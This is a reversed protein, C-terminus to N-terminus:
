SKILAALKEHGQAAAAEAPTKGSNNTISPDAGLNLLVRVLEERNQVTALFLATAGNENRANVNAGRQLCEQVAQTNGSFAAHLLETDTVPVAPLERNCYRCVSAEFKVTEACFPCKRTRQSPPTTPSVFGTGLPQLPEAEGGSKKNIGAIALGLGGLLCLGGFIAVSQIEQADQSNWGMNGLSTAGLFTGAFYGRELFMVVGLLAVAIGTAILAGKSM